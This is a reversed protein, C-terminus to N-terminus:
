TLFSANISFFDVDKMEYFSGYAVSLIYGVRINENCEKVRCLAAYDFSTVVCWNEAGNERIIEAVKRAVAYGDSNAKIEINIKIKGECLDFVEQLAPVKEGEFEASFWSGADLKKVEELTMSSISKDVGTTRLATDDHMVVLQGDSTLQVDLEITDAMNEMARSFAALTNEPAEMSAGRHATIQTEHFVAIKEFPNNNFSKVVNVSLLLVSAFILVFYALRHFKKNKEKIYIIPLDVENCDMFRYYNRTIVLFAAPVSVCVLIVKVAYRVSRLVSLYVASGIYAMDLLKVGLVLVVSILGYIVVILALVMLNYVVVAGVTRVPHRCVLKASKRYAQKFSKDELFFVQFSYIGLFAFVYVVALGTMIGALIHWGGNLVHIKFLNRTTQTFVLNCLVAANVAAIVFIYYFNMLINAPRLCDKLKYFAILVNSYFTVDAHRREYEYSSLIFSLEYICYFTVALAIVIVAGIMYPNIIRLIYENTLYSIGALRMGTNALFFFLPYIVAAALLKYSVEFLFAHKWFM